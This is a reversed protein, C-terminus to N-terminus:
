SDDKLTLALAYADNRRAGTIRAATAAAQRTPLVELLCALVHKLQDLDVNVTPAGHVLLVFEGRPMQQEFWDALAALSDRRVEEYRKSLERAFAAEREAGLETVMDALCERIRHPAEFFVLTGRLTSLERLRQRRAGGRAPLFGEFWFPRTPLAAVSLAATIASPGPVVRVAISHQQARRVLQYGPDSLLPTGADSVLALRAGQELRAVLPTVRREENHDHLSQLPSVIGYADLLRRTVRTDEALILDAQRLVDIARESIDRLNGIPTAVVWLVGRTGNASPNPAADDAHHGADCENEVGASDDGVTRPDNNMPTFM